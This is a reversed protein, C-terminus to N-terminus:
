NDLQKLRQRSLSAASSNPYDKLVREYAERAAATEGAAQQLRGIKFLAGPAKTSDPHRSVVLQFAALAKANQQSVYHAEGLWYQANPALEDNPYKDLFKAFAKASEQYRKQQPSLLEYAAQYEAQIQTRDGSTVAPASVPAPGAPAKASPSPPPKTAASPTPAPAAAPATAGGMAGLRQDIDLYLDRQKRKLQEIEYGLNEIEGRLERNERRMEDLQLTLETVRSVRRELLELRQQTSQEAALTAAPLGLLCLLIPYPFRRM